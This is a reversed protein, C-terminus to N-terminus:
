AEKAVEEYADCFMNWGDATEFDVDLSSSVPTLEEFQNNDKTPAADFVNHDHAYKAYGKAYSADLSALDKKKLKGVLNLLVEISAEHEDVEHMSDSCDHINFGAQAYALEFHAQVLSAVITSVSVNKM